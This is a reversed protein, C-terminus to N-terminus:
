LPIYNTFGCKKYIDNIPSLLAVRDKPSFYMLIEKKFEEPIGYFAEAIACSIACLTDTDGGISVSTRLCDEFDKSILFCYIAQPVTDQCTENFRYNKVLNNYKLKKIIPYYECMRTKIEDKSYGKRAMFIAIATAEAGKIGEPHDHTIATVKKSLKKVEEESDAFWAVPSVRMASGNGFSYYPQTENTFLWVRFHGGYGKNPYLRGFFKLAKTADLNNILSDAVACTMVSDDTFFCRSSFLEFDKRRYNNFEFRSGVTDGIIAGLM